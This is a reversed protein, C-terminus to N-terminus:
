QLKNCYIDYVDSKVSKLKSKLTEFDPLDVAKCLRDKLSQPVADSTMKDGVALRQVQQIAQLFIHADQLTQAIEPSFRSLQALNAIASQTRPNIAAIDGALLLEHQVVFEIDILGGRDLKVDWFGNGPKEQNLRERMDAIDSSITNTENAARRSIVDRGIRIVKEGINADGAVFRQRTLAMHEWTWADNVQYSEFASLRVAVPGARGSPRLRMDVEYLDGEGTPASLATILRQTLRTFWISTNRDDCDYIVIIDLDSGATMEQGGLKGMAFVAYAGPPAGFRNKTELAAAQLMQDISQDALDSYASAAEPAKVGGHLLRHGILFSQERHYRRWEDMAGEFSTADTLRPRIPTYGGILAELLDPRRALIQALRPAIALTTGLDELLDPEALLMALTQVGSSLGEFFQSFWKFATDPEGTKGMTELLQPLLATLLERGRATRTAPIGGRHWSRISAIAVSPDQFGFGSLTEVTGPDDDVGTFVLNGHFARTSQDPEAFLANYASQVCKRTALLERDFELVNGYGCLAAVHERDAEAEPIRHTQEDRQMQLRHEVDRLACYATHLDDATQEEVIEAELLAQLAGLTTNDQLTEDRGGLILQQTQVFFEIERIGGPGLKVDPSTTGFGADGVKTNIMQKIARIDGIAWYDLNRRWIFPSLKQMFTSASAFDGGAPRAKIWVMREWNQGRTEYYIEAMRTSVALPTSGPDPRLRLDTRFGYGDRTRTSLIRVMEQAIKRAAIKPDLHGGDFHEPDFFLCFDIDSSYNLENAGMKGLAIAFFGEPSVKQEFAARRLALDVAFDAFLSLAGTVEMVHMQSSLDHAALSLHLRAKATRIRSIVDETPTEVALNSFAEIIKHPDELEYRERLKALYPSADEAVSLLAAEPSNAIPNIRLM